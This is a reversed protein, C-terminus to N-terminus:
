ESDHSPHRSLAGRCASIGPENDGSRWPWPLWLFFSEVNDLMARVPYRIIDFVPGGNNVIWSNMGFLYEIWNDLPLKFWNFNTLFSM